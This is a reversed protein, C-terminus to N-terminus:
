AAWEAERLIIYKEGFLDPVNGDLHSRLLHQDFGNKLAAQRQSRYQMGDSVRVIANGLPGKDARMVNVTSNITATPKYSIGQVIQNKNVTPVLLLTGAATVVATVGIAIYTEKHDKVHAVVKDKKEKINM